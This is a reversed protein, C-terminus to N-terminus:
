IIVFWSKKKRKCHLCSYSVSNVDATFAAYCPCITGVTQPKGQVGVM